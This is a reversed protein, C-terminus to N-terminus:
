AAKSILKGAAEKASVVNAEIAATAQKAAKTMNEYASDAAAFGSKMAAVVSESGAPANKLSQEVVATFSKKLEVAQGEVLEKLGNSSQSLIEYVSRSYASVKELAPQALSKQLAILSQPDKAALLASINAASDALLARATNLNLAALREASNLSANVITLLSDVAAKNSAIFKDNTKLM